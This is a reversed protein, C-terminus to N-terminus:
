LSSIIQTSTLGQMILTPLATSIFWASIIFFVVAFYGRCLVSTIIFVHGLPYSGKIHCFIHDLLKGVFVNKSEDLLSSYINLLLLNNLFFFYM